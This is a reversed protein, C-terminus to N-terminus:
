GRAVRECGAVKDGPDVQAVDGTGPGCDIQDKKDNRARITDNGPGGAYVNQGKGANLTDAGKGGFLKDPGLGGHLTDAGPGGYLVDSGDGGFLTDDGGSTATTACADGYLTDNGALGFITDAGLFGCIRDPGPTGEIRDNGSTAATTGGGPCGTATRAPRLPCSDVADAVGDDDADTDLFEDAGIDPARGMVRNEGDIDTPGILPDSTGADITPSGPAQHFNGAAPDVFRPDVHTQNGGNDVAAPSQGARYNSNALEATGGCQGSSSVDGGTGHAIVNKADAWYPFCQGAGPNTPDPGPAYVGTVRIASSAEGVAIATVNRLMSPSGAAEIATADQGAAVVLADRLTASGIRVATGDDTVILDEAVSDGYIDIGGDVDVHRVHTQYDNASLSGDSFTLRPRPQGAAGHFDVGGKLALTSSLQYDGAVLIVEDGAQSVEEVAYRLDCPRGFTGKGSCDGFTQGNPTVWRTTALAPSAAALAAVLSTTVLPAIKRIQM